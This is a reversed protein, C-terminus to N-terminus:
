VTETVGKRVCKWYVINMIINLVVAVCVGILIAGVTSIEPQSQGGSATVRSNPDAPPLPVYGACPQDTIWTENYPGSAAVDELAMRYSRSLVRLIDSVNFCDSLYIGSYTVIGINRALNRYPTLVWRFPGSIPYLGTDDYPRSSAFNQIKCIDEESLCQHHLIAVSGHEVNHLWRQPPLYGYRGHKAWRERHRSNAPPYRNTATMGGRKVDYTYDITENFCVHVQPYNLYPASLWIRQSCTSNFRRVTNCVLARTDDVFDGCGSVSQELEPCGGVTNYDAPVSIPRRVNWPDCWETWSTPTYTPDQSVVMGLFLACLLIRM